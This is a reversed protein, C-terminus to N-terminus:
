VLSPRDKLNLQLNLEDLFPTYALSGRRKEPPTKGLVWPLLAGDHAM